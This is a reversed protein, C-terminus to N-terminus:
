RGGGERVVGRHGCDVAQLRIAGTHLRGAAGAAGGAARAARAARRAAPQGAPLRPRPTHVGLSGGLSACGGPLAAASPDPAQSASTATFPSALCLQRMRPAPGPLAAASAASPLPVQSASIPTSTSLGLLASSVRRCRSALCPQRMRPAPGPLAARLSSSSNGDGHAWATRMRAHTHM